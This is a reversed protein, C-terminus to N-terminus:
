TAEATANNSSNSTNSSNNNTNVMTVQLERETEHTWTNGRRLILQLLTHM